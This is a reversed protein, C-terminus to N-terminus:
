AAEANKSAVAALYGGCVRYPEGDVDKVEHCYFTEEMAVCEVAKILTAGCGNPISGERFACSACRPYRDLMAPDTFKNILAGLKKGELTPRNRFLTM